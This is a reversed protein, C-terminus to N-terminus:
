YKTHWGEANIVAQLRDRMSHLCGEVVEERISLWAGPLVECLAQKQMEVSTILAIDPRLTYIAEKLRPWLHEIPNLDPLYPPWRNLLLIGHKNIWDRTVGATHISANDQMFLDGNYMPLLGEELTDLYSRATYGNHKADPDREMVILESQQTSGGIACWVM